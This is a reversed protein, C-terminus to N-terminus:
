AKKYFRRFKYITVVVIAIMVILSGSLYAIEKSKLLMGWSGIEREWVLKYPLTSMILFIRKKDHPDIIIKGVQLHSPLGKKFVEWNRGKDNSVFLGDATGAYLRETNIPDIILSYVKPFYYVEERENIIHGWREGGGKSLFIGIDTMLYLTKSDKPDFALTFISNDSSLGNKLQKWSNGNDISKYITTSSTLYMNWPPNPEIFINAITGQPIDIDLASWTKGNDTSKFVGKLTSIFLVDKGEPHLYINIIRGIKAIDSLKEWSKGNDRSIFLGNETSAYTDSGSCAINLIHTGIEAGIKEWNSGNDISKYLGKTTGIFITNKESQSVAASLAADIMLSGNVDQWKEDGSTLNFIGGWKGAPDAFANSTILFSILLNALLCFPPWIVLRRKNLLKFLRLFFVM